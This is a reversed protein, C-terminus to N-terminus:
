AEALPIRLPTSRRSGGRWIRRPWGGSPPPQGEMETVSRRVRAAMSFSDCWRQRPTRAKPIRIPGARIARQEVSGIRVVAEGFGAQAHGPPHALPM